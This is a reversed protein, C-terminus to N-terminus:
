KKSTKISLRANESNKHLIGLINTILEAVIYNAKINM